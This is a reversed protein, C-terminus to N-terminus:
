AEKKLSFKMYLTKTDDAGIRGKLQSIEVGEPLKAADVSFVAAVRNNNKVEFTRNVISAM